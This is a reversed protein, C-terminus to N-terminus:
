AAVTGGTPYYGRCTACIGNVVVPHQCEEGKVKSAEITFGDPYRARLKAVNAALVQDLTFGHAQALASLYWAVDGLEKCVKDRDVGHGHGHGKKLLDAVEGAEGTLGLGWILVDFTQTGGRAWEPFEARAATRQVERDFEDPTM